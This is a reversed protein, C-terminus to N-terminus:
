GNSYACIARYVKQLHRLFSVHKSPDCDLTEKSSIRHLYRTILYQIIEISIESDFYHMIHSILSGQADQVFFSCIRSLRLYRLCRNGSRSKLLILPLSLCEDNDLLWIEESCVRALRGAEDNWITYPRIFLQM